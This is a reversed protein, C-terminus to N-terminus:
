PLDLEKLVVEIAEHSLVFGMHTCRLMRARDREGPQGRAARPAVIGDRASWLAVTECPPKVHPQADFQPEDVRHGAIAQYARWGNNARPNGSFPSGMTIVKAIKDPHAKALERAFVGGLSWGVLHLPAGERQHLAVLRAEVARFRAETAGLNVGEGWRKVTHGAAELRQAMWRMRVPHAGFGPLLMVTRPNQARAVPGAVSLSRRAIHLPWLFESLLLGARPARATTDAAERALAWRRALEPRNFVQPDLLPRSVM